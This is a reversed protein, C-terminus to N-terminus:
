TEDDSADPVEGFIESSIMKQDEESLDNITHEKGGCEQSFLDTDESEERVIENVARDSFRNGSIRIVLRKGQNEWKISFNEEDLYRFEPYPRYGSKASQRMDQWDRLKAELYETYIDLLHERINVFVPDDFLLVAGPNLNSDLDAIATVRVKGQTARHWQNAGAIMINIDTEAKGAEEQVIQEYLSWEELGTYPQPEDATEQDDDADAEDEEIILSSEDKQEEFDTVTMKWLDFVSENESVPATVLDVRVTARMKRWQDGSGSQAEYDCTVTEHEWPKEKPTVEYGFAIRGGCEKNERLVEMLREEFYKRITGEDPAYLSYDRQWQPDEAQIVFLKKRDPVVSFKYRTVGGPKKYDGALRGARGNGDKNLYPSSGVPRCLAPMGPLAVYKDVM